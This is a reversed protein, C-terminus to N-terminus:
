SKIIFVCVLVSVCTSCAVDSVGHMRLIFITYAYGFAAIIALSVVFKMIDKWMKADLPKPFLISRM